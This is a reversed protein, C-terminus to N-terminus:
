PHMYRWLLIHYNWHRGPLIRCIGLDCCYNKVTEWLCRICAVSELLMMTFHSLKWHRRPLGMDGCYCKVTEWKNRICAVSDLISVTFLSVMIVHPRKGSCWLWFRKTFHAPKGYWWMLMECNRMRVSAHSLDWYCWRLIHCTKLSAQTFHSLNGSWWLLM